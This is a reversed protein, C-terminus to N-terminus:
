KNEHGMHRHWMGHRHFSNDFIKKQESTLHAYFEKVAAVHSEMKQQHEKMKALLHDLRDPTTMKSLTSWDPKESHESPKIKDIFAKWDPEQAETLHLKDHLEANRKEFYETRKSQDWYGQKCVKDAFVPTAICATLMALIILKTNKM